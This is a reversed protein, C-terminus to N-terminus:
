ALPRKEFTLLLKKVEIGGASFGGLGNSGLVRHCPIVLLMPNRACANGVARAAKPNGVLSALEQYTTTTGFPIKKLELLVKTTFPPLGKLSIPLMKKSTRKNIFDEMWAEIQTHLKKEGTGTIHWEFTAKKNPTIDIKHIFQQDVHFSVIFPLPHKM